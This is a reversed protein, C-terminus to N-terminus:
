EGRTMKEVLERIAAAGAEIEKAGKFQIPSPPPPMPEVEFKYGCEECTLEGYTPATGDLFDFFFDCAPCALRKPDNSAM